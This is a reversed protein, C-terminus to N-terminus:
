ISLTYGINAVIERASGVPVISISVVLKGTSNVNQTPDITISGASIEGAVDMAEVEINCLSKFYAITDESLKGDADVYLPSNLKPLLRTRINRAIKDMARVNEIYAYDSTAATATRSQSVYLGGLGTYKIIECYAKDHLALASPTDHIANTYGRDALNYKEPWAISEHVPASSIMGLISGAPVYWDGLSGSGKTNGGLVGGSVVFLREYDSLKLDTSSSVTTEEAHLSGVGLIMPTNNTELATMEADLASLIAGEISTTVNTLDYLIFGQRIEGGAAIAADEVFQAILTEYSATLYSDLDSDTNVMIWLKAGPSFAFFDNIENWLYDTQAGGKVIGFGEAESIDRIAVGEGKSFTVKATATDLYDPVSDLVFLASIHDEGPLPRGLGGQGRNITVKSFAM